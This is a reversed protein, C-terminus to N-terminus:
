PRDLADRAAQAMSRAWCDWNLRERSDKLANRSMQEYRGPDTALAAIARAFVDGDSGEDILLGTEGDKVVGPVGGTRYSVSVLGYAAAEAFVIGLAEARTPLFFIHAAAYLQELKARGAPDSKRLLGHFRVNPPAQSTADAESCGV